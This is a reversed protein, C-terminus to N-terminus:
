LVGTAHAPLEGALVVGPAVVQVALESVHLLFALEEIEVLVAVAQHRHIAIDPFPEDEDVECRL